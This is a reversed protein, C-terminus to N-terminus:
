QYNVQPKFLEWVLFENITEEQLGSFVNEQAM